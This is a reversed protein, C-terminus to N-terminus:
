PLRTTMSVRLPSTGDERLTVLITGACASGSPSLDHPQTLSPLPIVSRDDITEPTDHCRRTIQTCLVTSGQNRFARVVERLPHRATIETKSRVHRQRTGVSFLVYRPKTEVALHTPGFAITDGRPGGHHPAILVNTQLDLGADTMSHWGGYHLDGGFLIRTRRSNAPLALRIVGSTDNPDHGLRPGGAAAGRVAAETQHMTPFACLLRYSTQPEQVLPEGMGPRYHRSTELRGVEAIIGTAVWDEADLFFPIDAPNRDILFLVRGIRRRYRQVLTPLGCIHDADNHTLAILPIRRVGISGFWDALQDGDTGVDILSAQSQSPRGKPLSDIVALCNGQGVNLCYIGIDM